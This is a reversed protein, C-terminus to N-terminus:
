QNLPFLEAKYISSTLFISTFTFGMFLGPNLIQFSEEDEKTPTCTFRKSRLNEEKIKKYLYKGALYMGSGALTGTILITSSQLISKM